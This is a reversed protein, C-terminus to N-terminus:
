GYFKHFVGPRKDVFIAQQKFNSSAFKGLTLGHGVYGAVFKPDHISIYAKVLNLFSYYYMLAAARFHLLSAAQYFTKAQRIFAQFVKFGVGPREVGAKKLFNIGVNPIESVYELSAFVEESLDLVTTLKTTNRPGMQQELWGTVPRAQKNQM